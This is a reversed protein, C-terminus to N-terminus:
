RAAGPATSPVGRRVDNITDVIAEVLSTSRGPGTLAAEDTPNSLFGVEVMIAPMNAGVLPRLPLRATPRTFLPVGRERLRRTLMSAIASSRDAFPMQALDWPVLDVVRSGGTVVPVPLERPRSAEPRGAYDTANLSLVQTGVTDPRVSANAHLSIFLDAKNNNALSTRRDVPVLEDADRTLLVRLGIRTEIATKLRQSLQLVYDKEKTGAPGTAGADAGGHGADLVITRVTGPAGTDLAPPEPTAIARPAPPPAPGGPATLEVTLRTPTPSDTRYGTVSPGLDVMLATGDERVAGVFDPSLGPVPTLDVAAADFRIVLRSGERTLRYPAAPQIDFVLRADAGAREFRGTIAPLRVDGVLVVRSARRVEARLGLAPALALRIFDV